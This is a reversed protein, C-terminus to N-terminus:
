GRPLGLMREAVINRQIEASGGYISGARGYLYDRTIPGTRLGGVETDTTTVASGVLDKLVGFVHQEVRTMVLKDVSDMAAPADSLELRNLTAWTQARLSALAVVSGGVAECVRDPALSEGATLHRRMSTLADDFPASIEVRRRLAFTGREHGLTDMAIRWGGHLDGVLHQVPVSVEDFFVECFESEGTMQTIPRVSIGPSAMDVVLYSLGHHRQSDRETRALLACWRAKHAWSTWTKQGDVIFQDGEQSARTAVNALDSGAGPESFGQCWIDEGSLLPGMLQERLDPPAYKAISPGVVDLGILGIPQPARARALEDTFAQQHHVSLGQGGWAVPWSIGILGAQYLDGQWARLVDFREDLDEAVAPIEHSSLWDRAYSRFADLERPIASSGSTM